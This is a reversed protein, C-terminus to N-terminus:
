HGKKRLNYQQEKRREGEISVQREAAEEVCGKKDAEVFDAGRLYCVIFQLTWQIQM